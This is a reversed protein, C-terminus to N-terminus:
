LYLKEPIVKRPNHTTDKVLYTRCTDVEAVTRYTSVFDEYAAVVLGAAVGVEVEGLAAGSGVSRVETRRGVVAALAVAVNLACGTAACGAASLGASAAVGAEAM